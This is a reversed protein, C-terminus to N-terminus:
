IFIVKKGQKLAYNVTYFTGGKERKLYALVVDARDVMYRNRDQMCGSYYGSSLIAREDCENLIREYRLKDARSFRESQNACPVCAVIKVAYEEKFKLVCEAATLDFGKAMGSYFIEVGGEILKKVEEELRILSFNKDLIRHGTFACSLSM